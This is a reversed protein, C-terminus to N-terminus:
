IEEKSDFSEKQKCNMGLLVSQYDQETQMTALRRLIEQEYRGMLFSNEM